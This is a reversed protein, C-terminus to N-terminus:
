RGTLFGWAGRIPRWVYLLPVLRSRPDVGYRRAMYPRAPFLVRLFSAPAPGNGALVTAWNRGRILIAHRLADVRGPPGRELLGRSFALAREQGVPMGVRVEEWGVAGSGVLVALDALHRSLM